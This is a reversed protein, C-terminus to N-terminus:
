DKRRRNRIKYVSLLITTAFFAMFYDVAPLFAEDSSSTSTDDSGTGSSTTTSTTVVPVEYPPGQVPKYGTLTGGWVTELTDNERWQGFYPQAYPFGIVGIYSPTYLDHATAHTFGKLSPDVASSAVQGASSEATFKVRATVGTYDTNPLEAQIATITAADAREIAEKLIFVSDYAGMATYTPKEGYAAEYATRFAATKSTPNADPPANSIAIEGAAAGGTDVFYNSDQAAVNIGAMFMNDNLGLAAWQETVAKGVPASFLTLIADIDDNTTLPTLASAIETGTASEPIPDISNDVTINYAPLTATIAGGIAATWAADERVITVNQVGYAPGLATLYLAIVNRALESGNTPGVRYYYDTIIPATSGVGLFPIHSDNIGYQLAVVVETRFGGIISVVGEATLSALSTSGTTIDPLGTSGSTTETFVQFDYATGGVDVGAGDNIEKVAMDVGNKMDIGVPISLPGLAGIKIKPRTQAKTVEPTLAFLM